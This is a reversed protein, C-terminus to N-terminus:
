CVFSSTKQIKLYTLILKLREYENSRQERVFIYNCLCFPEFALDKM